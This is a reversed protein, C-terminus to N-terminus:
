SIQKSTRKCILRILLRSGQMDRALDFLCLFSMRQRGKSRLETEYLEKVLSIQKSAREM